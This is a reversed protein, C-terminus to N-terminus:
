LHLFISDFEEIFFGGFILTVELDKELSGMRFEGGSVPIMRISQDTGILTEDYEAFKSNDIQCFLISVFILFPFRDM